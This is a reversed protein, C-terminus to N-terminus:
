KSLRCCNRAGFYGHLKKTVKCYYFHCVKVNTLCKSSGNEEIHELVTPHAERGVSTWVCPDNKCMPCVFTPKEECKTSPENVILEEKKVPAIVFNESKLEKVCDEHFQYWISDHNNSTIAESALNALGEALETKTLSKMRLVMRKTLVVKRESGVQVSSRWISRSLACLDTLHCFSVVQLSINALVFLEFIM